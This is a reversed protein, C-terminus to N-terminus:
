SSSHSLSFTLTLPPAMARPWGMPAEPQRIRTLRPAHSAAGPRWCLAPLGTRRRRGPCRWSGVVNVPAVINVGRGPPVRRPVSPRRYRRGNRGGRDCRGGTHCRDAADRRPEPLPWRWGTRAPPWRDVPDRRGRRPAPGDSGWGSASHGASAVSSISAIGSRSASFCARYASSSVSIASSAIIALLVLPRGGSRSACPM